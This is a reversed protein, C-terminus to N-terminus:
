VLSYLNTEYLPVQDLLSNTSAARGLGPMTPEDPINELYIDLHNKFMLIDGHDSNRLTLPMCNFLKAGKVALSANMARKVPAVAANSVNSPVAKRGTRSDRSSFEMDYGEVLGQTIKWCFIIM